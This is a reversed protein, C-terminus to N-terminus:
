VHLSLTLTSEILLIIKILRNMHNPLTSGFHSESPWWIELIDKGFHSKELRCMNILNLHKRTLIQGWLASYCANRFSVPLGCLPQMCPPPLPFAAGSPKQETMSSLEMQLPKGAPLLSDSTADRRISVPSVKLCM